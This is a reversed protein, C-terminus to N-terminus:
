TTENEQLVAQAKQKIILLTIDDFIKQQGIHRRVDEIVAAKIVIAPQNWHQSVVQCLREIGYLVDASNAAETIGDTYLVIGDGPHLQLEVQAVFEAIDDVLGLPFGLNITNVREIAGDARVILVDEHQGSLKLHGSRYDVLTLTLNRDSQMRKANDYIVRNLTTLFRAADTEQNTLLTRVATQVMLMLIGSELGHGTVDGIGIKIAGDQHLVDYYDGGVEDAPEMFGAIDLGPIESLEEQKPLIIQQLQRTIDLEAGMRLNESQLRQNLLTIEENAQALQVTREEVKQELTRYFSANELAIAAQASLINLVTLREPTFTDAALTNELYLIGTM